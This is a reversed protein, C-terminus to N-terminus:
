DSAGTKGETPLRARLGEIVLEVRADFSRDPDHRGRTLWEAVNPFRREDLAMAMGRAGESHEDLNFPASQEQLVFGAVFSAIADWGHAATELSFGAERLISLFREAVALLNPALGISAVVVRAGDRHSRMVRRLRRAEQMVREEWSGETPPQTTFEEVIRDAMAALLDRKGAVHWYLAGVRVGLREALRRTSLADLGVENLLELAATVIQERALARRGTRRAMRGSTHRSM